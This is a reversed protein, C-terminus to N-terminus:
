EGKNQPLFIMGIFSIFAATLLFFTIMDGFNNKIAIFYSLFLSGLIGIVFYFRAGHEIQFREYKNRIRFKM